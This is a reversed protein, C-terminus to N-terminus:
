AAQEPGHGGGAGDNKNGFWGRALAYNIAALALLGPAGTTIASIFFTKVPMNANGFFNVGMALLGASCAHAAIFALPALLWFKRGSPNRLALWSLFVFVALELMLTRQEAAVPFGTTILNLFPSFLGVVLGIGLGYLYVAIFAAWFMPLLFAGLPAAGGWPAMHLVFPIAWAIALLLATSRVAPKQFVRGGTATQPLAQASFTREFISHGFFSRTRYSPPATELGGLAVCDRGNQTKFPRIAKPPSARQAEDPPRSVATGQALTAAHDFILIAAVTKNIM